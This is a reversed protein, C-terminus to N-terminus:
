LDLIQLALRGDVHLRERGLALTGIWAERNGWPVGGRVQEYPWAGRTALRVARPDPVDRFVDLVGHAIHATEHGRSM